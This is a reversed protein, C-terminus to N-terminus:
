LLVNRANIQIILEQNSTIVQKVTQALLPMLALPVSNRLLLAIKRAINLIYKILHTVIQVFLRVLM